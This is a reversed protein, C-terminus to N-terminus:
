WSELMSFLRGNEIQFNQKFLMAASSIISPTLETTISFPSKSTRFSNTPAKMPFNRVVPNEICPIYSILKWSSLRGCIQINLNIGQHLFDFSGNNLFFFKYSISENQFGTKQVKWIVLM